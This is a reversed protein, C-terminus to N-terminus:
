PEPQDESNEAARGTQKPELLLDARRTIEARDAALPIGDTAAQKILVAQDRLATRVSDDGSADHLEHILKLLRLCVAVNNSANQRIENLGIRLLRVPGPQKLILRLRGDRGQHEPAAPLTIAALLIRELYDICNIATTSDNLSPSLAKLAIDVLQRVGFEPDQEVTRYSSIGFRERLTEKDQPTLRGPPTAALLPRREIVFDGVSRRVELVVSRECALRLLERAEVDQIYGSRTAEVIEWEAADTPVAEPGKVEDASNAHAATLARITEDSIKAVIDSAQISAAIHHIFALLGAIGLLAFLIGGWLALQPVFPPQDSRVAQLVVICYSFASLLIGLVAQNLPDRMFNRLVRSGYQSSALSLTVITVSFSVGAVTIMSTAIASLVHRAGEPGVTLLQPWSRALHQAWGAEMWTLAAAASAGLAVLLAPLFWLSSRLSFWLTRKLRM